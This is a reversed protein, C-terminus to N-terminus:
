AHRGADPVSTRSPVGDDLDQASPIAGGPTLDDVAQPLDTSLRRLIEDKSLGTKQELEGIVDDGLAQSLEHDQIGNNPGTNVWSDARDGLGNERFQDLLGGLGGSLIGGASSGGLM